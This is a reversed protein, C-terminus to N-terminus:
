ADGITGIIDLRKYFAFIFNRIILMFHFEIKELFSLYKCLKNM